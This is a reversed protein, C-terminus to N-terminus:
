VQRRRSRLNMTWWWRIRHRGFRSRMTSRRSLCRDRRSTRLSGRSSSRGNRCVGATGRSVNRARVALEVAEQEPLASRRGARNLPDLGLRRWVIEEVVENVTKGDIRASNAM